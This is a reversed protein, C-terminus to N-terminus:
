SVEIFRWRTPKSNAGLLKLHPPENESHIGIPWLPAEQWREKWAKFDTMLLHYIRDDVEREQFREWLKHHEYKCHLLKNENFGLFKYSSPDRFGLWGRDEVCEWRTMVWGGVPVLVIEGKWFTIVKETAVDQILFSHGHIPRSGQQPQPQQKEDCTTTSPTYITPTDPEAISADEKEM